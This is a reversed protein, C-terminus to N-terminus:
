GCANEIGLSHLGVDEKKVALWRLFFRPGLLEPDVVQPRVHVERELFVREPARVEIIKDYTVILFVAVFAFLGFTKLGEGIFVEHLAVLRVEIDEPEFVLAEFIGGIKRRGFDDGM